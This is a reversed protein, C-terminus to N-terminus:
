SAKRSAPAPGRDGTPTQKAGWHEDEKEPRGAARGRHLSCKSVRDDKRNIREKTREFKGQKKKLVRFVGKRKKTEGQAGGKTRWPCCQAKLRIRREDRNNHESIIIQAERKQKKTNKRDRRHSSTLSSHMKEHLTPYQPKKKDTAGRKKTRVRVRIKWPRFLEERKGFLLQFFRARAIM